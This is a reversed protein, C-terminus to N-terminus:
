VACTRAKCVALSAELLQQFLPDSVPLLHSAINLAEKYHEAAKGYEQKREYSSGAKMLIILMSHMCERSGDIELLAQMTQLAQKSYDFFTYVDVLSRLCHKFMEGRGARDKSILILAREYYQGARSFQYRALALDATWMLARIEEDHPDLPQDPSVQRAPQGGVPLLRPQAPVAQVPTAPELRQHSLANIQGPFGKCVVQNESM